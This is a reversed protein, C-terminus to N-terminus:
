LFIVGPDADGQIKADPHDMQRHATHLVNVIHLGVVKGVMEYGRGTPPKVTAVTQPRRRLAVKGVARIVVGNGILKQFVSGGDGM